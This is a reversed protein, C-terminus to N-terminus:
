KSRTIDTETIHVIKLTNVANYPILATIVNHSFSIVIVSKTFTITKGESDFFCSIKYYCQQGAHANTLHFFDHFIQITM